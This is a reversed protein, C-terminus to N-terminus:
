REREGDRERKTGKRKERRGKGKEKGYGMFYINLKLRCPTIM